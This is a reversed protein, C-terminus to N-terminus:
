IAQWNSSKINVLLQEVEKLLKKTSEDVPFENKQYNQIMSSTVTVKLWSRHDHIAQTKQDIKQLYSKAKSEKENFSNQGSNVVSLAQEKIEADQISLAEAKAESYYNRNTSLYTNIKQKESKLKILATSMGSLMDDLKDSKKRAESFLDDLVSSRGGRSYLKDGVSKSSLSSPTSGADSDAYRYSSISFTTFVIAALILSLTLKKMILFM